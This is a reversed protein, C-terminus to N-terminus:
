TKCIYTPSVHYTLTSPDAKPPTVLVMSDQNHCVSKPKKEQILTDYEMLTLKRRM